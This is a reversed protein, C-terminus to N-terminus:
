PSLFVVSFRLRNYCVGIQTSLFGSQVSFLTAECVPRQKAPKSFMILRCAESFALSGCNLASNSCQTRQSVPQNATQSPTRYLSQGILHDSVPLTVSQNASKSCTQDISSCLNINFFSFEMTQTRSRVIGVSHGGSTTSTM